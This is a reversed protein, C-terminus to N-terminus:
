KFPTPDKRRRMRRPSNVTSVMSSAYSYRGRHTMSEGGGNESKNKPTSEPIPPIPISPPPVKPPPYYTGGVTNSVIDIPDPRADEGGFTNMPPPTPLNPLIPPSPSTTIIEQQQQQQTRQQRKGLKSGSTSRRTTGEGSKSRRLFSFSPRRPPPPPVNLGGEPIAGLAESEPPPSRGPTQPPSQPSIAMTSQISTRISTFSPPHLLNLLRKIHRTM